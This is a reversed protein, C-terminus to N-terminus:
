VVRASVAPGEGPGQLGGQVRCGLASAHLHACAQHRGLSSKVPVSVVAGDLGAQADRGVSGAGSEAAATVQGVMLGIVRPRRPAAFMMRSGVLLAGGTQAGPCGETGTVEDEPHIGPGSGRKLRSGHKYRTGEGPAM